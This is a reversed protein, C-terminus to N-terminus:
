PRDDDRDIHHAAHRPPCSWSANEGDACQHHDTQQSVRRRRERQVGREVDALVCVAHFIRSPKTGACITANACVCSPYRQNPVSVPRSRKSPTATRGHCGGAPDASGDGDM